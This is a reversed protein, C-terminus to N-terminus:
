FPLTEIYLKNDIKDIIFSLRPYFHIDDFIELTLYSKDDLWDRRAWKYHLNKSSNSYLCEIMFKYNRYFRMKNTMDTVLNENKLFPTFIKPDMLLCSEILGNLIEKDSDNMFLMSYDADFKDNDIQM